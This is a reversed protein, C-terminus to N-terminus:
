SEVWAVRAVIAKNSLFVTPTTERIADGTRTFNGKSCHIVTKPGDHDLSAIIGVHGQKGGRDAWVLMDGLVAFDYEVEEVFGFPSKADAVINSTEFWEGKGYYPIPSRKNRSGPLFRDIGYCWAVFGSCDCTGGDGGPLPHLPDRGGAGLVYRTGKGIASRARRVVEAGKM